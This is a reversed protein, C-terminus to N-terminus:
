KHAAFDLEVVANPDKLRLAFREYVKLVYDGTKEQTVVEVAPATQVVFEGTDGDMAFLVGKAPSSNKLAPVASTGYVRNGILGKIRDATIGPIDLTTTRAAYTDALITSPLVLAQRGYHHEQLIAYGQAVAAYTNEGYIPDPDTEVPPVPITQPNNKFIFSDILIAPDPNQPSILLVSKSTFLPDQLAALGQFVFLDEGKALLNAARRACSEAIKTKAESDVQPGRVRFLVAIEVVPRSESEDVSLVGDSGFVIKDAPVTGLMTDDPVPPTLFQAAVTTLQHEDAVAKSISDWVEQTWQPIKEHGLNNPM